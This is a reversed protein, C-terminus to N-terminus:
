QDPARLTIVTNVFFVRQSLNTGAEAPRFEWVCESKIQRLPPTDSIKTIYVNNTIYIPAGSVPIDMSGYSGIIDLGEMLQRVTKM